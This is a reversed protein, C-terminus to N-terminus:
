FSLRFSESFQSKEPSSSSTVTENHRDIRENVKKAYELAKLYTGRFRYRQGGVVAMVKFMGQRCPKPHVHQIM